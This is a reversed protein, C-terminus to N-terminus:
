YMARERGSRSFMWTMAEFSGRNQGLGDVGSRRGVRGHSSIWIPLQPEGSSVGSPQSTSVWPTPGIRM